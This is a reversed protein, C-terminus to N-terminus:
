IVRRAQRLLREVDDKNAHTALILDDIKACCELLRCDPLEKALRVGQEGAGPDVVLTVQEARRLEKICSRPPRIGPLGVMPLEEDRLTSWTVMAKIEGEVCYVHGELPIEPNCLFLAAPVHAVEYRYKGVGRPPDKLRHKVNRLGGPALLPITATPWSQWQGDVPIDASGAGLKWFDQLSDPVGRRRWWRRDEVTMQRHYDLWFNELLALAREAERKRRLEVEQQQRRWRELDEDDPRNSGFQDPFAILGCQRCWARPKGDTFMRFRDPWEGDAHPTGGCQPCTSSWELRGPVKQVYQVSGELIRWEPPLSSKRM